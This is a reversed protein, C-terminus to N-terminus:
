KNKLKNAATMVDKGFKNIIDEIYGQTTGGGPMFFVPKIHGLPALMKYGASVFSDMSMLFKGYPSLAIIM